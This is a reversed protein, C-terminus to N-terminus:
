ILRSSYQKQLFTFLSHYYKHKLVLCCELLIRVARKESEPPRRTERCLLGQVYVGRPSFSGEVSVGARPLSGGGQVSVRGGQVPVGEQFLMPGPVSSSSLVPSWAVLCLTINYQSM